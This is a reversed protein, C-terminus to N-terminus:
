VHRPIWDGWKKTDMRASWTDPPEAIHGDADIVLYNNKMGRRRPREHHGHYSPAQPTLFRGVSQPAACVSEAVSQGSVRIVAQRYDTHGTLGHGFGHAGGGDSLVETKLMRGRQYLQAATRVRRDRNSSRM